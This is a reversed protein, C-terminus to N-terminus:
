VDRLLFIFSYIFLAYILTIIRSIFTIIILSLAFPTTNQKAHLNTLQNILNHRTEILKNYRNIAHVVKICRTVNNPVISITKPSTSLYILKVLYEKNIAHQLNNKNTKIHKTTTQKVCRTVFFYIFLYILCIDLNNYTFNNQKSIQLM